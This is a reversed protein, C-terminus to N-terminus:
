ERQCSAKKYEVECRKINKIEFTAECNCYLSMFYDTKLKIVRLIVRVTFTLPWEFTVYCKKGPFKVGM